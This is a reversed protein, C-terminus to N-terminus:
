LYDSDFVSIEAQNGVNFTKTVDSTFSNLLVLVNVIFQQRDIRMKQNFVGLTSYLQGYNQQM